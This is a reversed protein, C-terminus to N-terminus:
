WPAMFGVIWYESSQVVKNDFDSASNIRVLADRGLALSFLSLLCMMKSMRM